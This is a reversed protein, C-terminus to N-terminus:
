EEEGKKVFIIFIDKQVFAQRLEEMFVSYSFQALRTKACTVISTLHYKVTKHTQRCRLFYNAKIDISKIKM